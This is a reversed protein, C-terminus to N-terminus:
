IINGITSSNSYDFFDKIANVIFHVEEDKVTRFDFITYGNKQRTLIPPNYELFFRKVEEDGKEYRIKIVCTPLTKLPLSGGGFTSIDESMIINESKIHKKIRRLANKARRKIKEFDCFIMEIVPAKTYDSLFLYKLLREIYYISIKDPRIARYLPHKKMRELFLKKGLIIGGQCGGLLKDTSFSVIDVGYGLVENIVPENKDIKKYIELAGSGTDFYFPINYKKSLKVLEKPTVEEVFGDIVFNSRHVKLILGTNENIAKEYDGIKTKNTTGVEKLICGSLEMVEPIRFSGGIEVLESRSVVVEKGKALTSLVLLCASANNNVLLIDEANFLTPSLIDQRSGRKREKINFELTSYNCIYPMIEKLIDESLPARGLNTHIITGTANIVRKFPPMLVELIEKELVEKFRDDSSFFDDKERFSNDLILTKQKEVLNKIASKLLILNEKFGLARAKRILYDIQPIYNKLEM